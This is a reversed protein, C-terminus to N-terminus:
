RSVRDSGARAPRYCIQARFSEPRCKELILHGHVATACAFQQANGAVRSGVLDVASEARLREGRVRVLTSAGEREEFDLRRVVHETTKSRM